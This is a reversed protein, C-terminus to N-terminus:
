KVQKEKRLNWLSVGSFSQGSLEKETIEEAEERHATGRGSRQHFYIFM